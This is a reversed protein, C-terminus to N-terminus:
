GGIMVEVFEAFACELADLREAESPLITQAPRDVAREEATRERIAGNEYAYMPVGYGDFLPEDIEGDFFVWGTNGTMDNPNAGLVLNNEVDLWM